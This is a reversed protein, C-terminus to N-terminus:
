AESRDETLEDLYLQSEAPGATDRWNKPEVGAPLEAEMEEAATVQRPEWPRAMLLDDVIGM